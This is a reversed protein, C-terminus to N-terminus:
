ENDADMIGVLGIYLAEFNIAKRYRLLEREFWEYNDSYGQEDAKKNIETASKRAYSNGSFINANVSPTLKYDIYFIPIFREPLNSRMKQMFEVFEEPTDYGQPTQGDDTTVWFKYADYGGANWDESKLYEASQLYSGSCGILTLDVSGEAKAQNCIATAIQTLNEMTNFTTM